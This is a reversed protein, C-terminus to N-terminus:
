HGFIRVSEERGRWETRVCKFKAVEERLMAIGEHFKPSGKNPPQKKCCAWKLAIRSDSRLLVTLESPNLDENHMWKLMSRLAAALTFIEASNCSHGIGFGVREIPWIQNRSPRSIRFSGYGEGFGRKPDNCSTGGDAEIVFDYQSSSSVLRYDRQKSRLESLRRQMSAIQQQLYAIEDMTSVGKM